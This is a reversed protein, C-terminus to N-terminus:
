GQGLLGTTWCHNCCGEEERSDQSHDARVRQAATRHHDVLLAIAPSPKVEKRDWEKGIEREKDKGDKPKLAEAEERRKKELEQDFEVLLLGSLNTVRERRRM